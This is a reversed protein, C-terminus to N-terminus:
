AFVDDLKAAHEFRTPNETRAIEAFHLAGCIIKAAEGERLDEAFLSGKTEVALYLREAGNQEILFAWDPNYTGLPTNIEFWGPLKAALAEFTKGLGVSDALLSAEAAKGEPLSRWPSQFWSDFM